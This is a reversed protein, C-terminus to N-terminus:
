KESKSINKISTETVLKYKPKPMMARLNSLEREVEVMKEHIEIEKLADECDCHYYSYDYHEDWETDPKIESGCYACYKKGDLEINKTNYELKATM